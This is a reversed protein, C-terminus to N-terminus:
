NDAQPQERTLVDKMVMDEPQADRWVVARKIDPLECPDAADYKVIEELQLVLMQQKRFWGRQEVRYRYAGTLM